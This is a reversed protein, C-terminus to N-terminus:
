QKRRNRVRGPHAWGRPAPEPLVDLAHQDPDGGAEPDHGQGRRDNRARGGEARDPLNEVDPHVRLDAHHHQRGTAASILANQRILQLYQM